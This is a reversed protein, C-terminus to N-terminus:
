AAQAAEITEIDAITNNICRRIRDVRGDDSVSDEIGALSELIAALGTKYAARGVADMVQWGRHGTLYNPPGPTTWESLPSLHLEGPPTEPPPPQPSWNDFYAREASKFVDVLRDRASTTSPRYLTEVVETLVDDIDRSADMLMRGGFAINVEVGPNITPGMYYEVARGGEEYLQKIHQGTGATYPLFWKLRDWRQPPYVWVGGSTGFDCQLEATVQERKAEEFFFGHHGPDILYDLAQSLEVMYQMEEPTVKVGWPRTYGCMNVMLIKDPWKSRIYEATRRNLESYYQKDGQRSCEPCTCRGQDSAELHFGDIDFQDLVYDVVKQMWEWSRARSGCMAHPNPGRVEPDAEIIADFGWSYVGLGYLLKISRDHAANIVKNVQSRRAEDVVSSLDPPWAYTALLGFVDFENFGAQSALDLCRTIDNVTRDDLTRSPWKQGYVPENRMDNVWAGFATRHNYSKTM